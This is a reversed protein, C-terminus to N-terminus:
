DLYNIPIKRLMFNWLQPAIMTGKNMKRRVPGSRVERM